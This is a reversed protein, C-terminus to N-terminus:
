QVRVLGHRKKGASLKVISDHVDKTSLTQAADTITVDNIRAGGGTVLRRFEGKSEAMGLKVYLDSLAINAGIEAPTLTISPLDDGVGGQEFTKQATAAADIAAKESHCLKTAELALIKKAENIDSDRLRALRAIEDMPLLTFTKLMKEVDDDATNRWFQYYDYPSLMDANLWLAGNVSKGMKKGANNTILPWTMAFFDPGRMRHGLDVGSIINGWQDSGGFQVTVKHADHLHVFDYGQIVMYNFELFSLPQERELRLKVSDMTLMRNVSFYKGVDRLFDIYKINLFWDANNVFMADTKGDGYKLFQGFIGRIRAINEDIARHDLMKRVDDKGSPDGVLTTAGGMLTLPKHGCKQFWHLAMIGVLNGVHLSTATADCGFYATRTGTALHQDLGELDTCQNLFGREQMIKLFESKLKEGEQAIRIIAMVVWGWLSLLFSAGAGLACFPTKRAM